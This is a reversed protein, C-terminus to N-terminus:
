SMNELGVERFGKKRLYFFERVVFERFPIKELFFNELTIIEDNERIKKKYHIKPFFDFFSNIPSCIKIKHYM